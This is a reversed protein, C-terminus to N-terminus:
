EGQAGYRKEPSRHGRCRVTSNCTEAGREEISRNLSSRLDKIKTKKTMRHVNTSDTQFNVNDAQKLPLPFLQSLSFASLSLSLFAINSQTDIFWRNIWLYTLKETTVLDDFLVFEKQLSYEVLHTSNSPQNKKERHNLNTKMAPCKTRTHQEQGSISSLDDFTM